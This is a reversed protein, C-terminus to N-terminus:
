FMNFKRRLSILENVTTKYQKSLYDYKRQLTALQEEKEVRSWHNIINELEEKNYNPLVKIIHLKKELNLIIEKQSKVKEQLKEILTKAESNQWDEVLFRYYEKRKEDYEKFANIVKTLVEVKKKLKDGRHRLGSILTDKDILDSNLLKAM